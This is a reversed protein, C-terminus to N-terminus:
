LGSSSIQQWLQRKLSSNIIMEDLDPVSALNPHTLGKPLPTLAAVQIAESRGIKFIYGALSANALEVTDMGTCIPFSSTECDLSLAQIINQWLKQSDSNLAQIDVMLVWNGYRAGQLAFPAVKNLSKKDDISHGNDNKVPATIKEVLPEISDTVIPVTDISANTTSIINDVVPIPSAAESDKAIHSQTLVALHTIDPNTNDLSDSVPNEASPQATHEVDTMTISDVIESIYWTASEPQVWQGIGMMALIQRQQVQYRVQSQRLSVQDQTASM